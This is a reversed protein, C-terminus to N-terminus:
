HHHPQILQSLKWRLQDVGNRYHDEFVHLQEKYASHIEPVSEPTLHVRQGTKEAIQAEKRRLIPLFHEDLQKKIEEKRTLYDQCFQYLQQMIMGSGEHMNSFIKGLAHFAHLQSTNQPLVIRALLTKMLGTQIHPREQESFQELAQKIDSIQGELAKVALKAGEKHLEDRRLSEPNAQVAQAREMAVELASKILGM